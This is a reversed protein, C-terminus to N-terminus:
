TLINIRVTHRPNSDWRFCSENKENKWQRLHSEKKKEKRIIDHIYAHTIRFM